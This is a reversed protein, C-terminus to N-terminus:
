ATRREQFFKMAVEWLIDRVFILILKLMSAGGREKKM